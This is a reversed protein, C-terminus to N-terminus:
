LTAKVQVHSNSALVQSVIAFGFLSVDREGIIVDMLASWIGKPLLKAPLPNFGHDQKGRSILKILFSPFCMNFLSFYFNKVAYLNLEQRWHSNNSSFIGEIRQGKAFLNWCGELSFPKCIFKGSWALSWIWKNYLGWGAFLEYPLLLILKPILLKYFFLGTFYHFIEQSFVKEGRNNM